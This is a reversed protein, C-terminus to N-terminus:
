PQIVKQFLELEREYIKQRRSLMKGYYLDVFCIDVNKQQLM